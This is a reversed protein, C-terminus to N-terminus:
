SSEDEIVTTNKKFLMNSKSDSIYSARSQFINTKKSNPNIDNIEDKSIEEILM